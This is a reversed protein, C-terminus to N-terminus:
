NSLEPMYTISLRNFIDFSEFLLKQSYNEKYYVTVVTEFSYLISSNPSKQYVKIASELYNQLYKNYFEDKIGRMFYKIIQCISEIIDENKKM